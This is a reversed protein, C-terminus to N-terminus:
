RYNLILKNGNANLEEIEEPKWSKSFWSDLPSYLRLIGFWKSGPITKIWNNELGKVSKPGFWADVSGDSNYFLDKNTSFISPWSQDTRIILRNLLDYVIISWFESAPINSPLRLRYEKDGELMKGKSDYTIIHQTEEELLNLYYASM